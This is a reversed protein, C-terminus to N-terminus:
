NMWGLAINMNEFDQAKAIECLSEFTDPKEFNVGDFPSRFTYTKFFNSNLKVAYAQIEEYYSHVPRVQWPKLYVCKDNDVLLVQSDKVQRINNTIIVINDNDIFHKFTFYKNSTHKVDNGFFFKLDSEKRAKVFESFSSM